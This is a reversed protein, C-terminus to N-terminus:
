RLFVDGLPQVLEDAVLHHDNAEEPGGLPDQPQLYVGVLLAVPMLDSCTRAHNDEQPGVEHGVVMRRHALAERHAAKVNVCVSIRLAMGRAAPDHAGRSRCQVPPGHAANLFEFRLDSVVGVPVRLHGAFPLAGHIKVKELARHRSNRSDSAAERCDPIRIRPEPRQRAACIHHGCHWPRAPVMLEAIVRAGFAVLKTLREAFM